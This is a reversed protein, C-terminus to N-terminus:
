MQGVKACFYRETTFANEIDCFYTIGNSHHHTCDKCFVIKAVDETEQSELYDIVMDVAEAFAITDTGDAVAEAFDDKVREVLNDADIYRAM